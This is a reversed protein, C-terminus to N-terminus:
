RSAQKLGYLSKTLKCVQNQRETILGPPPIMYVEEELDGHLFTNDVDLQHLHWNKVAVTTLLLRITTLKAMPSLTDLYDIGELQTYGKAVLKAKHRDITGDTKHKINYVWKCGIPTKRSPIDTLYWTHNEQLARIEKNM